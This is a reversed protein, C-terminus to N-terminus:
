GWVHKYDHHGCTCVVQDDSSPTFHKCGCLTCAYSTHGSFSVDRYRHINIPPQPFLVPEQPCVQMEDNPFMDDKFGSIHNQNHYMDDDLNNHKNNSDISVTDEDSDILDSKHTKHLDDFDLEETTIVDDDSEINVDDEEIDGPEDYGNYNNEHDNEYDYYDDAM